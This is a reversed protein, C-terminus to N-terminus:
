FEGSVCVMKFPIQIVLFGFLKCLLLYGFDTLVDGDEVFNLLKWCNQSIGSFIWSSQASFYRFQAFFNWIKAFVANQYNTRLEAFDWFNVLM